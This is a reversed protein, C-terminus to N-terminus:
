GLTHQERRERVSLRQWAITRRVLTDRSISRHGPQYQMLVADLPPLVLELFSKYRGYEAGQNHDSNTDTAVSRTIPAQQFRGFVGGLKTLQSVGTDERGGPWAEDSLDRAAAKAAARVSESNPVVGSDGTVDAWHRGPPESDRQYRGAVKGLAEPEITNSRRIVLDTDRAIASVTALVRNAPKFGADVIIAASQALIGAIEDLILDGEKEADTREYDSWNGQERYEEYFGIVSLIEDRKAALVLEIEAFADGWDFHKHNLEPRYKTPM